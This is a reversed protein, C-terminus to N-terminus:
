ALPSAANAVHLGGQTQVTKRVVDGQNNCETQVDSVCAGVITHYKTTAGIKLSLNVSDGDALGSSEVFTTDDDPLTLTVRPDSITGSYLAAAVASTTVEANRNSASLSWQSVHLTIASVGNGTKIFGGNGNIVAM